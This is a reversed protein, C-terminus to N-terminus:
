ATRYDRLVTNGSFGSGISEKELLSEPEIKRATRINEIWSCGASRWLSIDDESAHYIGEDSGFYRFLAKKGSVTINPISCLWLRYRDEKRM